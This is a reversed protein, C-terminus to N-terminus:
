NDAALSSSSSFDIGVSRNTMARAIARDLRGVIDDIELETVILPPCVRMYNKVAIMVLGELLAERRIREALAPDPKRTEPDSVIDLMRYLGAGRVDGICPHRAKLDNLRTELVEGHKAARGTIDDRLVIQLQKLAVACVL